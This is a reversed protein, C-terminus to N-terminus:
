RSDSQAHDATRTIYQDLPEMQNHTVSRPHHFLDGLIWVTASETDNIADVLRDLDNFEGGVPVPIGSQRFHAGKGLHLDSLFLTQTKPHFLTRDSRAMFQNEGFEIPQM